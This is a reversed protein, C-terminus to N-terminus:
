RSEIPPCAMVRELDTHYTYLSGRVSFLLRYGRVPGDTATTAAACGLTADPWAAPIMRLLRVNDTGVGLRGALDTRARDVMVDLNRAPLSPKLWGPRSDLLPCLVAHEGAVHVEYTHFSNSFRLTQGSVLAPTYMQGPKRCGLSSDSWQSEARYVLRYEDAPIGYRTLLRRARESAADEKLDSGDTQPAPQVAPGANADVAHSPSAACGVLVSISAALGLRQIGPAKM